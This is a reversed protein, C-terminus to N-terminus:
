GCLQNICLQITVTQKEAIESLMASLGATYLINSTIPLLTPQAYYNYLKSTHNRQIMDQSFVQLKM